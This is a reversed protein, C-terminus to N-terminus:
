KNLGFVEAFKDVFHRFSIELVESVLKTFSTTQDMNTNDVDEDISFLVKKNL